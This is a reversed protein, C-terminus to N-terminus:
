KEDSTIINGGKDYVPSKNAKTDKDNTKGVTETKDDTDSKTKDNTPEKSPSEESDNEETSDTSEENTATEVPAASSVLVVRNKPPYFDRSVLVDDEFSSDLESIKKYVQIRLGDKGEELVKEQGIALKASLRYITRPKVIEKESVYYSIEYKSKFSYLEIMLKGEKLSASIMFPIETQNLFKFDLARAQNVKAEIGPQLYKPMANQSHRELITLDTQLVASYLTSAVFNATEESYFEEVEELTKLFSFQEDNVITTDNLAEAIAKIGTGDVSVDQIEFSIKKLNDISLEVETAEVPGEKLLQAHEKISTVTEDVYFLPADKFLERINEDIIVEIPLQTSKNDEWFKYWPTKTLAIFQDVTKSIDFTFYSGPVSIKATAGEVIIDNSKWKEVESAVQSQIAAKNTETIEIGAITANASGDKAFAQLGPSVM